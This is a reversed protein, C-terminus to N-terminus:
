SMASRTRPPKPLADFGVPLSFEEISSPSSHVVDDGDAPDRRRRQHDAALIGVSWFFPVAGFPSELVVGVMAAVLLTTVLLSTLMELEDRDPEFRWARRLATLCIMILPILGLLGLRAWSGLFYQHPSRVTDQAAVESGLLEVSAGSEALFDPGFGVGILARERDDTIWSALVSWAKERADTTGIASAHQDVYRQEATPDGFTAVLRSGAFTTPLLIAMVVVALPVLSLRWRSQTVASGRWLAISGYLLSAGLALLAARSTMSVTLFGAGVVVMLYGFGRGQGWRIFALGALVALVSGDFDDRLEFVRLGGVTPFHATVTPYLVALVCWAAHVYLATWMLHMTRARDARTAHAIAGASLFGTVCYLYPAFDRLAVADFHGGAVFRCVSYVLLITLIPQGVGKRPMQAPPLFNSSDEIRGLIVHVLALAVLIDTLYLPGVGIHSGWRSGVLLFAVALSAAVAHRGRAEPMGLLRRRVTWGLRSFHM